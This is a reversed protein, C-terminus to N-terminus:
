DMVLEQSGSKLSVQKGNWQFTGNLGAPLTVNAKVGNEGNRVVSVEIEGMPHPMIGTAHKLAGLEPKIEVSKFGPEAPRIGLVTALLGYNPHAAWAHSDTRSPAPQEPTTTLGIALMEQWPGLQEIYRDAMGAERLAELVYYSFYYTSQTISKDDLVKQMVAAKDADPVAGVLIAMTNTQQSFTRSELGDRFLEKDGDWAKERIIKILNNALAQYHTAVDAQGFEKELEAARQLAYVYQLSIVISHGDQSNPPMGEYWDTAWDVFPWWPMTNILGTDDLKGEFWNIVGRVGIMQENVYATDDRHLWYDHV